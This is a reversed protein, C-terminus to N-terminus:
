FNRFHSSEKAYIKALFKKRFIMYIKEFFTKQSFSALFGLNVTNIGVIPVKSDRVFYTADLITGDGGFFLMIEFSSKVFNQYDTFIPLNLNQFTKFSKLIGLFNKEIYVEISNKITYELLREFYPINKEDIKQGSIAIRMM